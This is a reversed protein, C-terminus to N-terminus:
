GEPRDSGFALTGADSISPYWEDGASNIPAGPHHPESWGTETREVYWIDMDEKAPSGLELPRNSIFWLQKNDKTVFPDADAYQGSFPAVVPTTWHADQLHSEVITWFNFAPTSKIFYVTKSDPTFSLHSEADGTSIIGPQFLKVESTPVQARCLGTAILWSFVIAIKM